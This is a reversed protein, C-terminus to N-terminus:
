CKQASNFTESTELDLSFAKHENENCAPATFVAHFSAPMSVKKIRVRITDGMTLQGIPGEVHWHGLQKGKPYRTPAKLQQQQDPSCDRRYYNYRAKNEASAAHQQVYCVNRFDPATSYSNSKVMRSSDHDVSSKSNKKSRQRSPSQQTSEPNRSSVFIGYDQALTTRKALLISAM